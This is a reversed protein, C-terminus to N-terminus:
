FLVFFRAALAFIFPSFVFENCDPSLTANQACFGLHNYNTVAEGHSCEIGFTSKWRDRSMHM